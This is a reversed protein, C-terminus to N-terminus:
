LYPLKEAKLGWEMTGNAGGREGKGKGEGMGKGKGEGRGRYLTGGTKKRFGEKGADVWGVSKSMRRLLRRAM